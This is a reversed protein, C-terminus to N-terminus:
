RILLDDIVELEMVIIPEATFERDIHQAIAHQEIHHHGKAWTERDPWQAYAIYAGDPRKHLRAGLSGQTTIITKTFDHWEQLFQKEFEDKIQFEYLVCFM